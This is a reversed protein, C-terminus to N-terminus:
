SRPAVLLPQSVYGCLGDGDSVVAHAVGTGRPQVHSTADFYMWDSAPVRQLTVGMGPPVFLWDRVDLQASIGNTSDALTLLRQLGTPEEGAVLPVRIRGWVRAREEDGGGLRGEVFRWEVARGYGWAAPTGPVTLQPQPDPLEPPQVAVGSRPARDEEYAILWARATVVTRGDASMTAQVQRVRKGPRLVTVEVDCTGQPIPGLFDVDIKGVTLPEDGVSAELCRGLLASPPGGHQARADWPSETAATSLFSADGVQEYFSDAPLDPLMVAAPSTASTM